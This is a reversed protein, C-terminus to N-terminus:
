FRKELSLGVTRPQIYVVSGQAFGGQLVGRRDTANNVFLNFTWDEYTGGVRLDTKAYAPFVQRPTTADATFQNLRKGVYSVEAGVFGTVAASLPFEQSLSVYSSFKSSFPLRDGSEGFAVTASQPPFDETLEAESLVVWSRLSLGKLPRSEVSFEVGQSKARSGNVFYYFPNNPDQTYVNLQIDKWDIYYVSTDISLTRNLFDAKLGLEYNQTKDPEYGSPVTPATPNSGGPRYGSALRAYAMANPTLKFRPTLLYTFANAKSHETPRPSIVPLGTLDEIFAGGRRETYTKRSRSERGGVQIDFRDSLQFTLNTFAALEHYTSPFDSFITTGFREGTASDVARVDQLYPSDESTYFTGIMWDVKEGIPLSARLEQTLKETKNHSLIAAGDVQFYTPSLFALGPFDDSQSFENINFGTLSRLDVIGAKASVIASYAQAKRTFGGTGRLNNQELDGLGPQNQIDSTGDGEMEQYMASLKISFAESLDWLASLRGGSLRQENIGEIDAVPNDIYGPEQRTFASARIAFTDGLPVNVSGHVNYGLNNGHSISSTGAQLRGSLGVFSPDVTVFKLLGGMSSAGYLTGQPGRLVEVRELDGPDIDPAVNGGGDSTSAGYPIDDVTVGVTPNAPGTSIGRITLLQQSQGGPVLNLGPVSAYYDRLLFQNSQVLKDASIATVPVPVDQLRELRKQATVVVEELKGNDGGASIGASEAAAETQAVRVAGDQEIGAVPKSQIAITHRDLYRYILGTGELLRDLAEDTTLEGRIAPTRMGKLQESPASIQIGAQRAFEPISKTAEQEPLDFARQQAHAQAALVLTAIAAGWGFNSRSLKRTM